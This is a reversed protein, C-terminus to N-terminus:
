YVNLISTSAGYKSEEFDEQMEPALDKENIPSSKNNRAKCMGEAPNCENILHNGM